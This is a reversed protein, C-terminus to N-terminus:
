PRWIKPRGPKFLLPHVEYDGHRCVVVVGGIDALSEIARRHVYETALQWAPCAIVRTIGRHDRGSDAFQHNHSRLAIDPPREGSLAHEAWIDFAYLRSYSARTYARRGMRGHHRVDLLVGGIEARLWQWSARGTERDKVVPHGRNALALAVGEELSAGKGVHAPTGRIIHVTDPELTLVGQELLEIAIAAHAGEQNTVIQHTRHHDGDVLDGTQLYHLYSDPESSRIERVRQIFREHQQWLWRQGRSPKVVQGDDLRFGKPPFLGVTSGAHQDGAQVIIHTAM